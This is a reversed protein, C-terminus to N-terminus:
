KAGLGAVKPYRYYVELCLTMLATSYIRGGEQAWPDEPDWSGSECRDKENRQHDVIALKMADNWKRWVDGGAQFAALTGYYWYYMDITGADADWRPLKKEILALGKKVPESKAPDEGAFIRCLVGAATMSETNSAPFKAQMAVTRAAAGGRQQYGVKGFEPDTMRDVWGVADRIAGDDVDLEAMKGSKLAMVMWGTVSTDNDGDRVGYRWALYPNKSQHIFTIGRQASDRLHTSQTMGFAEVMGLTAIAHDYQFQQSTRPGFCGETDQINKLYRLGSKVTEKYDGSVHTDGRGLFCLLSLGTLGPDHVADGPGSCKNSSCQGAFGDSDWRGDPSQHRSLWDLAQSVSVDERKHSGGGPGGPGGRGKGRTGWPSGANGGIGIVQNSYPGDFAHLFQSAPDGAPPETDTDDGPVGKEDSPPADAVTETEPRDIDVDDLKEVPDKEPEPLEPAADAPMVASLMQATVAIRPAVPMMLFALAVIGHIGISALVWPTKRLQLAMEEDFGRAELQAAVSRTNLPAIHLPAPQTHKQPM